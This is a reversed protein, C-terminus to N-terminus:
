EPGATSAPKSEHGNLLLSPFAPRSPFVMPAWGMVTEWYRDRAVGFSSDFWKEPHECVGKGPRPKKFQSSSWMDIGSSRANKAAPEPKM